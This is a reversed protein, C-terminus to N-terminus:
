QVNLKDAPPLLTQILQTDGCPSFGEILNKNCDGLGGGPSLKPYAVQGTLDLLDELARANSTGNHQVENVPSFEPISILEEKSAPSVEMSQAGNPTEQPRGGKVDLAELNILPPMTNAMTPPLSSSETTKMVMSELVLQGAPGKEKPQGNIEKLKEDMGVKVRDPAQKEVKVKVDPQGNVQQTMLMDVSKTLPLEGQAAPAPPSVPQVFEEKKTDADAKRTRKMIEEIRKKRQLREQEEQLKLMEREQRQREAQMRAQQEAEEREREMQAQLAREQRERRQREEDEKKRNVEVRQAEEEQRKRQQEVKLREEQEKQQRAQRRRETLLRSAEEADTTGAVSKATHTVPSPEPSGGGSLETPTGKPISNELTESTCTKREQSDSKSTDNESTKRLNKESPETKSAKEELTEAKFPNREQTVTKSPSKEQIKTKLLSNEQSDLKCTKKELTDTKLPKKESTEPKLSAKETEPTEMKSTTKEPTEAKSPKKEPAGTGFTKKEPTSAKPPTKDPSGALAAKRDQLNHGREEVVLETSDHKKNGNAVPSSSSHKQPSSHQRVTCPSQTRSKAIPRITTPSASRKNAMAPSEPRRLPSSALPSATQRDRRLKKPTEPTVTPGRGREESSGPSGSSAKRGVGRALRSPSGRYPSRHPSSPVREATHGVAMSSSSLRKSILPDSSPPLNMTSASRTDAANSFEATAPPPAALDYPFASAASLPPPVNECDGDRTGGPGAWAWRKQRQELQLSRELSRRMLAELREKEEELRQRRKEEVAARRLEEKQRQEELRRWREEVTREYQLQARREKERIAQERAALSREREERREKALRMRDDTRLYGEVDAPSSPNAPLRVPSAHGNSHLRKDAAVAPTAKDKGGPSSPSAQLRVPSAHGNVQPRKESITPPTMVEVARPKAAVEVACEAMNSIIPTTM